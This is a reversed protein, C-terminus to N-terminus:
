TEALRDGLRCGTINSRTRQLTENAYSILCMGTGLNPEHVLEIRRIMGDTSPHPSMCMRTRRRSYSQEVMTERPSLRSAISQM